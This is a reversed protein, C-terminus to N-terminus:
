EYIYSMIVEDLFTNGEKLRTYKRLVGEKKLGAKEYLRIAKENTTITSLELRVLGLQKGFSIIEQMMKYGEGKGWYDAHIALGGLYAIHSTRHTLRILKFMGIRHSAQEYIYLTNAKRLQDFIPKFMVKDMIEYLFFHNVEPNMYLSYIFDFDKHTTKRIM